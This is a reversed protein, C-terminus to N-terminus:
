PAVPQEHAGFIAETPQMLERMALGGCVIAAAVILAIFAAVLNKEADSPTRESM